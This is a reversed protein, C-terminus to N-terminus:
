LSNRLFNKFTASGAVNPLIKAPIGSCVAGLPAAGHLADAGPSKAKLVWAFTLQYKNLIHSNIILAKDFLWYSIYFQGDWWASPIPM